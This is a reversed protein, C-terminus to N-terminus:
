TTQQEDVWEVITGQVRVPLIAVDEEDDGAFDISPAEFNTAASIDIKFDKSNEDTNIIRIVKETKLGSTSFTLKKSAAPTYDSDVTITQAETTVTVSDIVYIGWKDVVKIVFYDTDLVLAGDTSGTVSNITPQTGDSEQNALEIFKSYNWDGSAIVESQSVLPTGAVTDLTVLGADLTALNTLNIEALDFAFQVKDGKVFKKQSEVNDFPIEHNEVLSTFVPNRLAGIDVLSSFNDGIQVRTSGKRIAATKQITTQTM